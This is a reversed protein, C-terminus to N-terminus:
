DTYVVKVIRFDKELLAALLAIVVSKGTGAPMEVMTRTNKKKPHRVLKAVALAM